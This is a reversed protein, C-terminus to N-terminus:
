NHPKFQKLPTNEDIKSFKYGHQLAYEIIEPLADRTNKKIDHMLIIYNANDKLNKRVTNIIYEKTAKKGHTDGCDINWDFYVYGKETMLQALKKMSVKAQRNSTGGPFRFYKPVSGTQEEVIDHIKNFDNLYTDMTEYISWKHSYTHIGVTHGNSYEKNIMNKYNSFQNTVFFTAKIGYNDLIKLIDDTYPGPGDDFTLYITSNKVAQNNIKEGVIINRVIKIENKQSDSVVYTIEYNGAIDTDLNSNIKIKDSINGDCSDYASAGEEVYNDGINLYVTKLGRLTILPKEDDSYKLDKIIEAKNNSSDLAFIIIKDDKILYKVNNSIDGDVNDMATADIEVLHNNKCIIPEKNLTLSPKENDVVNIIRIKKFEKDDYNVIYSIIYHGKKSTNVNGLINVNLDIKKGFDNIYAVAGEENYEEGIELVINHSGNIHIEVKPLMLLVITSILITILIIGISIIRKRSSM